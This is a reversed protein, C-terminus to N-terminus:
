LTTIFSRHVRNNLFHGKSSYDEEEDDPLTGYPTALSQQPKHPFIQWQEVVVVQM